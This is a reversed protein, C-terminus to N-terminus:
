IHILSLCKEPLRTGLIMPLRTVLSLSDRDFGGDRLRRVRPAGDEDFLIKVTADLMKKARATWQASEENRGLTKAIDALCEMQLILFAQLDPTELPPRNM